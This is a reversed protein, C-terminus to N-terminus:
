HTHWLGNDVILLALFLRNMSESGGAKRMGNQLFYLTINPINHLVAYITHSM